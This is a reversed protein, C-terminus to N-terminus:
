SFKPFVEHVLEIAEKGEPLLGDPIEIGESGIVKALCHAYVDPAIRENMQIGMQNAIGWSREFVALANEQWARIRHDYPAIDLGRLIEALSREMGKFVKRMAQVSPDRGWEDMDMDM